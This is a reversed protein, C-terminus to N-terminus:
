RNFSSVFPLVMFLVAAIVIIYKYTRRAIWPEKELVLIILEKRSM